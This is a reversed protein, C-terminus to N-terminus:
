CGYIFPRFQCLMYENFSNWEHVTMSTSSTCTFWILSVDGYLSDWQPERGILAEGFVLAPPPDFGMGSHPADTVAVGTPSGLVTTLDGVTLSECELTLAFLITEGFRQFIRVNCLNSDPPAIYYYFASEDTQYGAATLLQDAEIATTRDPSIGFWCWDNTACPRSDRWRPTPSGRAASRL